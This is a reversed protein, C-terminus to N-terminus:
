PSGMPKAGHKICRKCLPTPPLGYAAESHAPAHVIYENCATLAHPVYGRSASRYTRVQHWETEGARRLFMEGSM